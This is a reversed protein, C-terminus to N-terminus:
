GEKSMNTHKCGGGRRGRGSPSPVRSSPRSKSQLMSCRCQSARSEQTSAHRVCLLSQPPPDAIPLEAAHLEAALFRDALVEDVETTNFVLEHDLEVASVVVDLVLDRIIARSCFM